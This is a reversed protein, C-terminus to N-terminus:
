PIVVVRASPTPNGGFFFANSVPSRGTGTPGVAAVRVEYVRFMEAAPVSPVPLRIAGQSPTPKGLTVTWFPATAGQLYVELAYESVVPQAGVMTAHDPSPEFCIERPNAVPPATPSATGCGQAQATTAGFLLLGCGLAVSACWAALNRRRMAM